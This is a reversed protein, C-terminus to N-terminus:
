EDALIRDVITTKTDEPTVEIWNAFDYRKLWTIQRKAYRRTNKMITKVAPSFEEKGDLYDYLEKYGIGKMSSLNIDYGKERLAKVEDILGDKILQLVRWNIRNYLAEREMTLAYLKFNYDQNLPCDKLSKIGDGQEFAEIARIIKRVNNPHIREASEADLASLYSHMYENGKEKAMRELEQRRENTDDKGAFDMDYIISNLYLGTGGVLIPTKGRALVNKIVAFALKQYTAATMVYDPEVIGFLHHPVLKMEAESPKASGIDMYKYLQVSDCNIIEGDIRMALEIAAASKGVATPGAIIYITNNDM